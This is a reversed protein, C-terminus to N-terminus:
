ESQALLAPYDLGDAAFLPIEDAVTMGVHGFGVFFAAREDQVWPREVPCRRM